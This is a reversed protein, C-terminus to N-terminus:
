FVEGGTSERPLSTLKTGKAHYTDGGKLCPRQLRREGSETEREMEIQRERERETEKQREPETQM